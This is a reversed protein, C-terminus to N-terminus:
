EGKPFDVSSLVVPSNPQSRSHKPSLLESLQPSPSPSLIFNLDTHLKVMCDLYDVKSITDTELDFAHAFWKMFRELHHGRPVYTKSVLAEVQKQDLDGTSDTDAEDFHAKLWALLDEGLRSKVESVLKENDFVEDKSPMRVLPSPPMAAPNEDDDGLLLLALDDSMAEEFAALDDNATLHARELVKAMGLCYEDFTIRGDKNIDLWDVIHKM